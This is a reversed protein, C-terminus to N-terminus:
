GERPAPWLRVAKLDHARFDPRRFLGLGGTGDMQPHGPGLAQLTPRRHHRVFRFVRRSVAIFFLKTHNM